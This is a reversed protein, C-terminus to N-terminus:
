NAPHPCDDELEIRIRKGFCRALRELTHITANEVHGNELRSIAARDIGSQAALDALSLSKQRRLSKVMAAFHALALYQGHKIPPTFDGSEVLQALSPKSAFKERVVRDREVQQPSQLADRTIRRREM